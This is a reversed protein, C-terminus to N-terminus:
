DVIFMGISVILSIPIVWYCIAIGMSKLVLVGNLRKNEKLNRFGFIAILLFLISTYFGPSIKQDVASFIFHEMSNMIGWILVGAGFHLNSKKNRLYLFLGTLLCLLFIANNLLWHSYSLPKPLGYHEFMWLPFNFIAEESLHFPVYAIILGIPFYKFDITKLKAMLNTIEPYKM